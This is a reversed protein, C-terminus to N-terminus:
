SFFFLIYIQELFFSERRRFVVIDHSRLVSHIYFGHLEVSFLFSTYENSFFFFSQKEVNLRNSCQPNLRIFSACYIWCSFVATKM